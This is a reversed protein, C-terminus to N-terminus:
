TPFQARRRRAALWLELLILWPLYFAFVQMRDFPGTFDERVGLGGTAIEWLGYQVRYLWSGLALVILRAAWDHHDPARAIASRWTTWAVGAVLLGYLAFGTSMWAGGVTGRAAIYILGGIGTIAAAVLTARGVARHARPWRRRVAGLMQVPALVSLLGGAIMHVYLLATATLADPHFLRSAMEEVRGMSAGRMVSHIAFPLVALVLM